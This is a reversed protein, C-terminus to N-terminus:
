MKLTGGYSLINVSFSVYDLWTDLRGVVGVCVWVQYIGLSLGIMYSLCVNLIQSYHFGTHPHYAM